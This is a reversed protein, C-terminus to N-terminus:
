GGADDGSKGGRAQRYMLWQLPILDSRALQFGAGALRGLEEGYDAVCEKFWSQQVQAIEQWGECHRLQRMFELNCYTRRAIFRLSEVQYEVMAKLAHEASWTLTDFEPAPIEGTSSIQQEAGSVHENMTVEM